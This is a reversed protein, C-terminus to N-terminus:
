ACYRHRFHDRSWGRDVSSPEMFMALTHTGGRASLMPACDSWTDLLPNYVEVSSLWRDVGAAGGAAYVLGGLECIGFMARPTRMPAVASWGGSACDYRHVASSLLANGATEVAGVVYGHEMQRVSEVSYFGFERKLARLVRDDLGECGVDGDRLYSLVHGFHSGDRDIFVRGDTGRVLPYRGSFMADLMTGPKHRLTSVSTTFSTGGVNLEVQSEQNLRVKAMAAIETDLEARKGEVEALMADHTQAVVDM